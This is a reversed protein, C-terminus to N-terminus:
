TQDAPVNLKNPYIYGGFPSSMSLYRNNLRDYDSESGIESDIKVRGDTQGNQIRTILRSTAFKAISCRDVVLRVKSRFIFATSFPESPVM